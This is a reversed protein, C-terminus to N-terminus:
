GQIRCAGCDEGDSSDTNSVARTGHALVAANSLSGAILIADFIEEDPIGLRRAVRIHMKLCHDCRLAASVAVSILEVTKPDLRKFEQVIASDYLIKSVLLQPTKELFELIFPVEGYFKEVRELLVKSAEEPDKKLLEAVEEYDVGSNYPCLGLYIYRFGL